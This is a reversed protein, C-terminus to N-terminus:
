RHTGLQLVGANAGFGGGGTRAVLAMGAPHGAVGGGLAAARPALASARGALCSQSAWMCCRM